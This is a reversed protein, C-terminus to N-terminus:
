DILERAEAEQTIWDIFKQVEERRLASKTAILDYGVDTKASEKFPNVLLKADILSRLIPESGIIFGQGAIAAQLAQNYDNFRVGQQPKVDGAGVAELWYQWRNWKATRTATQFDTLDWRLLPATALDQVDTIPPPGEALTPSCMASLQEDFLRRSFVEPGPPSAFRIVVDADGKALDVLEETSDILVAIGPHRAKFSTLRPVLWVAAFSPDASIILRPENQQSRIRSVADIIQNFGRSLDQAAAEGAPTLALGRGKREFLRVDLAEELKRVLQKVAAPSVRLENAAPPYSLHRAVTEFARLANLSPLWDSM